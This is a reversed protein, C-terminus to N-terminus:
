PAINQATQTRLTNLLTATTIIAPHNFTILDSFFKKDVVRFPTFHYYNGSFATVTRVNMGFDTNRKVVFAKSVINEHVYIFGIVDQHNLLVDACKGNDGKVYLDVPHSGDPFKLSPSSPNEFTGTAEEERDKQSTLM